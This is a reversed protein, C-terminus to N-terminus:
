SAAPVITENATSTGFMSIHILIPVPLQFLLPEASGAVPVPPKVIALM